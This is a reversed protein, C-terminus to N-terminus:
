TMDVNRRLTLQSTQAHGPEMASNGVRFISWLLQMICTICKFPTVLTYVQPLSLTHCVRYRLGRGNAILWHGQLICVQRCANYNQNQPVEPQVSLLAKVVELLM